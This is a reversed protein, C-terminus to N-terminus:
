NDKYYNKNNTTRLLTRSNQLSYQCSSNNLVTEHKSQKVIKDLEKRPPKVQKNGHLINLFNGPQRNNMYKICFRKLYPKGNQVFNKFTM